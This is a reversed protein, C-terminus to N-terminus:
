ASRRGSRPGRPARGQQDFVDPGEEPGQAVPRRVVLDVADGVDLDAYGLGLTTNRRLTTLFSELVADARM